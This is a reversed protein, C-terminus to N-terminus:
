RRAGNAQLYTLIQQSETPSPTSVKMREMNREMRMFVSPWDQETHSRPDPLAHCRSCITSFEQRGAGSPLAGGSIRLANTVLYNVMAVRDGLVPVEVQLSDPLKEMRLWMRRVIQPWDVAAHM